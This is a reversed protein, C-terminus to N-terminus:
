ILKGSLHIQGILEAQLKWLHYRSFALDQVGRKVAHSLAAKQASGDM